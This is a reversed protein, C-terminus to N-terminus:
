YMNNKRYKSIILIAAIYPVVNIFFILEALIHSYGASALKGTLFIGSCLSLSFVLTSVAVRLLPKVKKVFYLYTFPLLWWGFSVAMSILIDAFM